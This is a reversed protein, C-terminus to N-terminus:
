LGFNSCEKSDVFWITGKDYGTTGQKRYLFIANYETGDRTFKEFTKNKCGAELKTWLEQLKTNNTELNQLYQKLISYNNITERQKADKIASTNTTNLMTTIDNLDTKLYKKFIEIGNNTKTAQLQLAQSSFLNFTFISISLLVLKKMSGGFVKVSFKLSIYLTQVIKM